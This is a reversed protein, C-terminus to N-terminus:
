HIEALYSKFDYGLSLGIVNARFSGSISQLRGASVMASLNPTIAYGLGINGQAVLGSGMILGGGGAAGILGEANLFLHRDLNKLVGAGVQGTMYAGAGGSYAALGQGTIYATRNFFYDMQIGLNNINEDSHHKRWNDSAKLYTQSVTRIRLSLPMFVPQENPHFEAMSKGGSQYGLKFAITNAEFSGTESKLYGGSLDAFIHRGLYYQLGASLNLLLGGGSDVNGGGGGGLSIDTSAYLNHALPVRYGGGALIQMYGSSQGGAAGETELRAFWHDDLYTRWEIGLLSLDSQRNGEDNFSTSAVHLDRKILALSHVKPSLRLYEEASLNRNLFHERGSEIFTYLPLTYSIFPQTSHIMGNDPFDVHSIGAGLRGWSGMECSLSAQSRLMLGGGSLTYGGRGGGAGIFLGSDFGIQKTIPVHVGGDLGITIFGGREGKVSMWSSIGAYIKDTFDHSIGLATMGMRENGPLTFEECSIKLAGTSLLTGASKEAAKVSASFSLLAGLFCLGILYIRSNM